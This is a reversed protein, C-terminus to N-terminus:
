VINERRCTFRCDSQGLHSKTTGPSRPHLNVVTWIGLALIRYRLQLM